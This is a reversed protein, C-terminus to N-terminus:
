KESMGRRPQSLNTSTSQAADSLVLPEDKRRPMWVAAFHSILRPAVFMSRGGARSGITILDTGPAIAVPDRSRSWQDLTPQSGTAVAGPVSEAAPCVLIAVVACRSTPAISGRSSCRDAYAPGREWQSLAPTLSRLKAWAKSSVNGM